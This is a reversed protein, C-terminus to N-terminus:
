AEADSREIYELLHSKRYRAAGGLKTMRPGVGEVAWRALTHVSLGLFSAAEARTALEPLAEVSRIPAGAAQM